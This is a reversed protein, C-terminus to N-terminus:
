SGCRRFQVTQKGRARWERLGGYIVPRADVGAAALVSAAIAARSGTECITVVPKGNGLEEGCTRVLRYPVHRSGSIYGADREDAERVDLLEVADAALLRELPRVEPPAGLFPGRNLEVIRAMNPPRPQSGGATAHVFADEDLLELTPNFRREFGITSSSKSSMAAGCLSGAVHGPYLETGDD